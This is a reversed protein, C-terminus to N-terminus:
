DWDLGGAGGFLVGEEWVVGDVSVVDVSVCGSVRCSSDM